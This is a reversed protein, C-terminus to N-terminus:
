ITGKNEIEEAMPTIKRLIKKIFLIPKIPAAIDVIIIITKNLKKFSIKTM